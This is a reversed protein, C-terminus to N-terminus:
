VNMKKPLVNLNYLKNIIDHPRFSDTFQYKTYFENDSM